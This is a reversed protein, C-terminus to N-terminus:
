VRVYRSALPRDTWIIYRWEWWRWLDRLQVIDSAEIAKHLLIGAHLEDINLPEVVHSCRPYANQGDFFESTDDVFPLTDAYGLTIRAFKLVVGQRWDDIRFTLDIDLRVQARQASCM